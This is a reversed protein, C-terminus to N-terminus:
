IGERVPECEEYSLSTATHANTLSGTLVQILWTRSLMKLIQGELDLKGCLCIVNYSYLVIIGRNYGM